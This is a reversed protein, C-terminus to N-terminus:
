RGALRRYDDVTDLDALHAAPFPLRVAADLHARIVRKRCGDGRAARLEAFLDRRYLTPPGLVGEYDSVVLPARRTEYAERLRRLQETTVLPQDALLMVAGEVHPPLADLGRAISTSMGEVYAPNVAVACPLDALAAAVRDADRGLVVVVPSLGAEIARRAMRRVLPEGELPLLVKNLGMRAAAGAALLLGAIM